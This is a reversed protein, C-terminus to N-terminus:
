AWKLDVAPIKQALRRQCPQRNGTTQGVYAPRCSAILQMNAIVEIDGRKVRWKRERTGIQKDLPCNKLIKQLELIITGPVSFEIRSLVEFGDIVGM